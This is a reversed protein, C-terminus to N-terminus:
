NSPKLDVVIGPCVERRRATSDVFYSWISQLLDAGLPTEVEEVYTQLEILLENLEDNAADLAKISLSTDKSKAAAEVKGRLEQDEVLTSAELFIKRMRANEQFRIDAAQDYEKAANLILFAMTNLQKTQYDSQQSPAIDKLLTECISELMENMSPKM